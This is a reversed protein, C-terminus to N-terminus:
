STFLKWADNHKRKQIVGVVGLDGEEHHYQIEFARFYAAEKPFFFARQPSPELQSYFLRFLFMKHYNLRMQTYGITGM